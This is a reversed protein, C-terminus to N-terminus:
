GSLGGASALLMTRGLRKFSSAKSKIVYVMSSVIGTISQTKYERTGLRNLVEIDTNIGSKEEIFEQILLEVCKRVEESNYALDLVELLEELCIEIEWELVDKTEEAIDNSAVAEKANIIMSKLEKLLTAAKESKEPEKIQMADIFEKFEEELGISEEVYREPEPLFISTEPEPECANESAELEAKQALEGLGVLGGLSILSISFLPPKEPEAILDAPATEGPTDPILETVSLDPETEIIESTDLIPLILEEPQVEPEYDPDIPTAEEDKPEITPVAEAAHLAAKYLVPKEFEKILEDGDTSGKRETIQEFEKLSVKPIAAQGAKPPDAEAKAYEKPQSKNERRKPTAAKNAKSKELAPKETQKFQKKPTQAKNAIETKPATNKTEPKEKVTQAEKVAASAANSAEL